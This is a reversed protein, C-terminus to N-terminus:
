HCLKGGPVIFFQEAHNHNLQGANYLDCETACYQKSHKVGNGACSWEFREFSSGHNNQGGSWTSAQVIQGGLTLSSTEQSAGSNSGQITVSAGPASPSPSVSSIGPRVSFTLPNGTAGGAPTAVVQASGIAAGAPVTFKILTDSWLTVPITVGSFTLNGTGQNPRSGTGWLASLMVWPERPHSYLEVLRRFPSHCAM